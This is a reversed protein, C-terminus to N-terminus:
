LKAMNTVDEPWRTSRVTVQAVHADLSEVVMTRPHAATNAFSVIFVKKKENEGQGAHDGEGDGKNDSSDVLIGVGSLWM